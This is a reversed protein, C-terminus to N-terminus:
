ALEIILGGIAFLIFFWFAATHMHGIAEKIHRAELAYVPTGM